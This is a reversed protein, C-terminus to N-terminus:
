RRVRLDLIYDFFLARDYIGVAGSLDRGVIFRRGDETELEEFSRVPLTEAVIEFEVVDLPSFTDLIEGSRLRAEQMVIGSIWNM